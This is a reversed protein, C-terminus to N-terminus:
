DVMGCFCNMMMMIIHENLSLIRLRQHKQNSSIKVSNSFFLAPHTLKNKKRSVIFEQAPKTRNTKFSM